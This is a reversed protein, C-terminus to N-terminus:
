EFTAWNQLNELEEMTNIYFETSNTKENYDTCTAM